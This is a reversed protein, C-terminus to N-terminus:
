AMLVAVVGFFAFGVDFPESGGLFLFFAAALCVSSPVLVSLLSPAVREGRANVTLFDGKKREWETDCAELERELRIVELKAEIRETREDIQSITESDTVDETHKIELTSECHHCTVFWAANPVRLPAGCSACVVAQLQM